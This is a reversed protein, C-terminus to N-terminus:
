HVRHTVEEMVANEVGSLFLVCFIARAHVDRAFSSSLANSVRHDREFNREHASEAWDSKLNFM